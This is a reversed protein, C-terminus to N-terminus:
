NGIHKLSNIFHFDFLIFNLIKIFVLFLFIHFHVENLFDASMNQSGNLSKLAVKMSIPEKKNIWSGDDQKFYKARGDIWIASYVKAFGGEGIQKMDEFRDFPIWELFLPYDVDDNNSSANYITDKIFNDIDDNRSTWGEIICRPVCEKCWFKEPPNYCNEHNIKVASISDKDSINLENFKSSVQNENDFSM